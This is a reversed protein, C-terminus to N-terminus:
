PRAREDKSPAAGMASPKILSQTKGIEVLVGDRRIAVIKAGQITEGVHRLEGNMLAQPRPGLVIGQVTLSPLQAPKSSARPAHGKVPAPAPLESPLLSIMPDRLTNSSEPARGAPSAPPAAKQEIARIADAPSRMHPMVKTIADQPIASAAPPSSRGPTGAKAGGGFLRKVTSQLMVVFVILLALVVLQELRNKKVADMM